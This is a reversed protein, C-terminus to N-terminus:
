FSFRIGLDALTQNAFGRHIAGALVAGGLDYTFGLGAALEKANAEDDNHAIYAQLGIGGTLGANTYATITRSDASGNDVYQLGFATDDDVAYEGTLVYVDNDDNFSGNFAAGIGFSFGGASYDLSLGLEEKTGAGLDTVNQNPTVYSLRAMLGGNRYRVYLGMRNAEATSYPSTEYAAYDAQRYSGFTQETYGIETNSLTNMADVATNANGVEVRLGGSEAYVYAANIEAGGEGSDNQTRSQDYQMRIRGGLRVGSDLEKAVDFNFRLRMNVRLETASAAVPDNYVIGARALGSVRVEAAAMAPAILLALAVPLTAPTRTM